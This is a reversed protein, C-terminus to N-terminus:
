HNTTSSNGGAAAGVLSVGAGIGVIATGSLATGAVGGAAGGAGMAMGGAPAQAVNIPANKPQQPQDNQALATGSAFLAAVAFAITTKM